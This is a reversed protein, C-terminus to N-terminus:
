KGIFTATGALHNGVGKLLSNVGGGEGVLAEAAKRQKETGHKRAGQVMAGDLAARTQADIVVGKSKLWRQGLSGYVVAALERDEGLLISYVADEPKDAHAGDLQMRCEERLEARAAADTPEQPTCAATLRKRVEEVAALSQERATKIAANGAEWAERQRDARGDPHIDRNEIAAAMNKQMLAGANRGDALTKRVNGVVDDCGFESLVGEAVNLHPDAIKHLEAAEATDSELNASVYM